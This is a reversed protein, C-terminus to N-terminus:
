GERQFLRKKWYYTYLGLNVEKDNVSYIRKHMETLEKFTKCYRMMQKVQISVSRDDANVVLPLTQPTLWQWFMRSVELCDIGRNRACDTPLIGHSFDELVRQRVADSLEFLHGTYYDCLATRVPKNPNQKGIYGLHKEFSEQETLSEVSCNNESLRQITVFLDKTAEADSEASHAQKLCIGMHQCCQELKVGSKIGTAKKFGKVTDAYKTLPRIGQQICMVSLFRVDFVVNHGVCITDGLYKRIAPLATFRNQRGVLMENTIGTLETINAPVPDHPQIYIHLRDIVHLNKDLRIGAFEIIEDMTAASLGTTELDFVTFYPANDAAADPLLDVTRAIEPTSM